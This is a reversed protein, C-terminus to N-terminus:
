NRTNSSGSIYLGIENQTPRCCLAGEGLSTLGGGRRIVQQSVIRITITACTCTVAYCLSQHFPTINNSRWLCAETNNWPQNEQLTRTRPPYDWFGFHLVATLNKEKKSKPWTLRNREQLALLQWKTGKEQFVKYSNIYDYNGGSVAHWCLTDWCVNHFLCLSVEQWNRICM